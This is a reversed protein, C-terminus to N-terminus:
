FNKKLFFRVNRHFKIEFPPCSRYKVLSSFPQFETLPNSSIKCHIYTCPFKKIVIIFYVIIRKNKAMSAWSAGGLFFVQTHSIAIHILFLSLFPSM